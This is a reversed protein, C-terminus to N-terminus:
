ADQKVDARAHQKSRKSELLHLEVTYIKRRMASLLYEIKWYRMLIAQLATYYVHLKVIRPKPLPSGDNSIAPAWEPPRM